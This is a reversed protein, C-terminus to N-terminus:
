SNIMRSGFIHPPSATKRPVRTVKRVTSADNASPSETFCITSLKGVNVSCCTLATMANAAADTCSSKGNGPAGDTAHFDFQIFIQGIFQRFQKRRFPMVNM